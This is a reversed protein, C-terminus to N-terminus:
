NFNRDSLDLGTRSRIGIYNGDTSILDGSLLPNVRSRIDEIGIGVVSM